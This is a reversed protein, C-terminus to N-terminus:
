TGNALVARSPPIQYYNLLESAIAHFIPSTVEDAAVGDTPGDIQVVMAFKPRDVPGFGVFTAVTSEQNADTSDPTISRGAKGALAYGPVRALKGETTASDDVISELMGTLSRAAAASMAPPLSAPRVLKQEGGSGVARVVYPKAPIGNNAIAATAAALQIATVEVGQGFANTALDTASWDLDTPMRLLGDTEGPLDVGTAHGLELNSLTRYYRYPSVTTGIWSAGVNSSFALSQLVTMPGLSFKKTDTITEGVYTLSGDYNFSTQPTVTGADLAAAVTFINFITGPETARAVASIGYLSVERSSYRDPDDPNLTPLSALALIAGDTPDLIVVTGGRAHHAQVAAALQRESIWQIYRDITLNLAEGQTAAQYLQPSFAIASGDTDREAVVSGARGALSGNFRVELGSLGNNDAGVVGLLQAALAGQPYVRKPEQQFFLGALALAKIQNVKEETLWPQILTPAAVQKSMTATLAAPDIGLIPALSAATASPHSIESTTAYLSQYTVTTALPIGTRDVIDGRRPPVAIQRWHEDKAMAGYHDHLALQVYALRGILALGLFTIVAALFRLRFRRTGIHDPAVFLPSRAAQSIM